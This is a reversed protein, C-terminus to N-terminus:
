ANQLAHLPEPTSLFMNAVVSVQIIVPMVVGVVTRKGRLVTTVLAAHVAVVLDVRVVRAVHLQVIAVRAVVTMATVRTQIAAFGVQM